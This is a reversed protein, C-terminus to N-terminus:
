TRTSSPPDGSVGARIADFAEIPTGQPNTDTKLMLPTIAGLLV